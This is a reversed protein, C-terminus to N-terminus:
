LGKSDKLFFNWNSFILSSFSVLKETYFQIFGAAKLIAKNFFSLGMLVHFSVSIFVIEHFNSTLQANYFIVNSYKSEEDKNYYNWNKNWLLM